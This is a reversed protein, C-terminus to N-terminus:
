NFFFHKFDAVHKSVCFDDHATHKSMCLDGDPLSPKKENILREKLSDSPKNIVSNVLARWCARVESLPIWDLGNSRLKKADTKSNYAPKPNRASQLIFHM